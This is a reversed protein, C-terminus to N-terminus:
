NMSFWKNERILHLMFEYREKNTYYTLNSNYIMPRFRKVKDIKYKNM